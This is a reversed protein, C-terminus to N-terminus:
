APLPTFGARHFLALPFHTVRQLILGIFGPRYRNCCRMAIGLCVLLLWNLHKLLVLLLLPFKHSTATFSYWLAELVQVKRVRVRSLERLLQQSEVERSRHLLLLLMSLERGLKIIKFWISFDM